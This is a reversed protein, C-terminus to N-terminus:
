YDSRQRKSMEAEIADVLKKSLRVNNADLAAIVQAAADRADGTANVTVHQEVNVVIPARGTAAPAAGGASALAPAMPAAIALPVAVAAVQAVRRMAAIMPAPKIAAAITEVIRVRHLDVLPGEKAPSFPLFGRIRHTVAEIARVPAMVASGIGHALETMLHAGAAYMSAGFTELAGLVASFARGIAAHWTAFAAGVLAIGAGIATIVALVGGGIGIFGAFAMISGVAAIAGGVIVLLGAGIVLTLAAFKVLEPHGKAFAAIGSIVPGLYAGIKQIPGILAEGFADKILDLRKGLAGMQENFASMMKAAGSAAAGAVKNAEGLDGRFKVLGPVDVALARSGRIGLASTAQKFKEVSITGDGVEKRLNVFTGIVDLSGNKFTALAVGLVKQLKGRSFASLAETLATGAESGALGVQSFGQLTALLDEPSMGAAKASGIGASVGSMLENVNAFAGHRSTYAVLDALHKQQAIQKEIPATKDVFDNTMTAMQQGIASADGLNGKAVALANGTNAMALQWNGLFSMSRYLNDAVDTQAVNFKVSMKAMFDLAQAHERVGATAPDLATDLHKVHEDLDAAGKVALGLPVSIAAGMAGIAAGAITLQQASVSARKAAKDITGLQESVQKIQPTAKDIAKIIISVQEETM